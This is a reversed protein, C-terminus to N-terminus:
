SNFSEVISSLRKESQVKTIPKTKQVHKPRDKNLANALVKASKSNFIFETTFSKTAM